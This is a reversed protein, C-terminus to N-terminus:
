AGPAELQRLLLRVLGANARVSLRAAQDKQAPTLTAWNQNAAELQALTQDLRDRTTHENGADRDAAQERAEGAARDDALQQEEEATMPVLYGDPHEPDIIWRDPM